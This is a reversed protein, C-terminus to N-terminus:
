SDQQSELAAIIRGNQKLLAFLWRQCSLVNPFRRFPRVRRNFEEFLRELRNTTRAISWFREELAFYKISLAANHVVYKLAAHHEYLRWKKLFRKMRRWFEIENRAHYVKQLGKIIARKHSDGRLHRAVNQILHFV